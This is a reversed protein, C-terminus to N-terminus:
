SCMHHIADHFWVHNYWKTHFPCAFIVDIMQRTTYALWLTIAKHTTSCDRVQLGQIESVVVWWRCIHGARQGSPWSGDTLFNHCLPMNCKTGINLSISADLVNVCIHIYIYILFMKMYNMVTMTILWAYWAFYLYHNGQIHCSINGHMKWIRCCLAKKRLRNEQWQLRIKLPFNLQRGSSAWLKYLGTTIRQPMQTISYMVYRNLTKNWSRWGCIGKCFFLIQILLRFINLEICVYM